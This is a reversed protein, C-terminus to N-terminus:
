REMGMAGAVQGALEKMARTRNSLAEVDLFYAFAGVPCEIAEHDTPIAEV